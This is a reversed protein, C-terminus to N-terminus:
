QAAVKKNLLCIVEILDEKNNEIEALLSKYLQPNEWCGRRIHNVYKTLQFVDDEATGIQMLDAETMTRDGLAQM